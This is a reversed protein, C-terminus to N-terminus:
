AINAIIMCGQGSFLSPVKYIAAYRGRANQPFPPFPFALFLLRSKQSSARTMTCWVESLSPCNEGDRPYYLIMSPWLSIILNYRLIAPLAETGALTGKQHLFAVKKM